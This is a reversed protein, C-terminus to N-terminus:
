LLDAGIKVFTRIDDLADEARGGMGPDSRLAQLTPLVLPLDLDRHLRALHGLCTVATGRVEVDYHHTMELCKGQM